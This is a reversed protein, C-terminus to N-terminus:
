PTGKTQQAARLHVELAEARHMWFDKEAMVRPLLRQGASHKALLAPLSALSPIEPLTEPLIAGPATKAKDESREWGVLREEGLPQEEGSVCKARGAFTVADVDSIGSEWDKSTEVEFWALFEVHYLTQKAYDKGKTTALMADVLKRAEVYLQRMEEASIEYGGDDFWSNLFSSYPPEVMDRVESISCVGFITETCKNTEDRQIDSGDILAGREVALLIRCDAELMGAIDSSFVPSAEGGPPDVIEEGPLVIITSVIAPIM